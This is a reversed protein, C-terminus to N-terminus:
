RVAKSYTTRVASFVHELPTTKLSEKLVDLFLQSTAGVLVRAPLNSKGCEAHLRAALAKADGYDLCTQAFSQAGRAAVIATANRTAASPAGEAALIGDLVVLVDDYIYARAQQQDQEAREQEQELWGRLSYLVDEAFESRM